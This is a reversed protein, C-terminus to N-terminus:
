DPQTRATQRASRHLYARVFRRMLEFRPFLRRPREVLADTTRPCSEPSGILEAMRKWAAQLLVDRSEFHRYVTREAVGTADAVARVTLADEGGDHILKAAERVIAERTLKKQGERRTPPGVPPRENEMDCM